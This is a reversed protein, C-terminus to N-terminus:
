KLAPSKGAQPLKGMYEEITTSFGSRKCMDKATNKTGEYFEFAKATLEDETSCGEVTHTINNVKGDTVSIIQVIVCHPKEELDSLLDLYKKAM